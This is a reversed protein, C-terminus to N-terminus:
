GLVRINRSIKGRDRKRKIRSVIDQWGACFSYYYSYSTYCVCKNSDDAYQTIENAEYMKKSKKVLEELSIIANEEQEEEYSTLDINKQEQEAKELEQTLRMLEEQAQQRNPEVTTYELEEEKLEIKEVVPEIVEEETMTELVIEEVKIPEEEIELQEIIEEEPEEVKLEVKEVVPEIVEEKIENVVVSPAIIEETLTNVKAEYPTEEITELVPTTFVEQQQEEEYENEIIENVEEVLKNLEKTNHRQKRKYYNKDVLYIVFCLLCAVAAVIYVVIIEQSTLFNMLENM